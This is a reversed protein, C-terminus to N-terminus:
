NAWVVKGSVSEGSGVEVRLFYLGSRLSGAETVPLAMEGGGPVDEWTRGAVRRGRVDVLTASVPGSVEGELRYLLVNGSQVVSPFRLRFADGGALDPASSIECGGGYAGILEGCPSKEALCPSGAQLYYDGESTPALDCSAPNCFLPDASVQPGVFAVESEESENVLRDPDFGCCEFTIQFNEPSIVVTEQPLSCGHWIICRDFKFREAGWSEFVVERWGNAAITCNRLESDFSGQVYIGYDENGTV